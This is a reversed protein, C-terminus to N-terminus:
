TARAPRSRRAMTRRMKKLVGRILRERTVLVVADQDKFVFFLLEHRMEETTDRGLSSDEEEQFNHRVKWEEIREKLASNAVIDRLSMPNRTLPCGEHYKLWRLLASREFSHGWRTMVPSHFIELTLPCIFEEPILLDDDDPKPSSKTATTTTPNM